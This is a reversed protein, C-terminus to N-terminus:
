ILRDSAETIIKEVGTNTTMKALSKRLSDQPTKLMIVINKVRMPTMNIVRGGSSKSVISVFGLKYGLSEKNRFLEDTSRSSSPSLSKCDVFCNSMQPGTAAMDEVRKPATLFQFKRQVLNCNCFDMGRGGSRM